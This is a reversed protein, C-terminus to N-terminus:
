WIKEFAEKGRHKYVIAEAVTVRYVTLKQEDYDFPVWVVLYNQLENLYGYGGACHMVDIKQDLMIKFLLDGEFYDPLKQPLSDPHSGPPRGYIMGVTHWGLAIALERALRLQYAENWVPRQKEETGM